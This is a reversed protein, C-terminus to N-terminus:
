SKVWTIFQRALTDTDFQQRLRPRSNDQIMRRRIHSAWLAADEPCLFFEARGREEFLEEVGAGAGGLIPVGCSHAELYVCGFGETRSPMAYLDLSRYFDPLAHHDVESRFEVIDALGNKLVYDRCISSTEGSGILVLKMKRAGERHLIGIARLLTIHNKLPQFNAICGITFVDNPKRPRPFFVEQDYGNYYVYSARRKWSPLRNGGWLHARVDEFGAEPTDNRYILGFSDESKQSCFVHADVLECIRGIYTYLDHSLGQIIGFRGCNIRGPNICHHHMFIRAQPNLAKMQTAVFGYSFTHVHCIDVDRADIGARALATAFSAGNRREMVRPLIGCPLEAIPFTQVSIGQYRYTSGDGGTLVRVDYSGTRILAKVM